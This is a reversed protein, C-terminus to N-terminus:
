ENNSIQISCKSCIKATHEKCMPVDCRLCKHSTKRDFATPCFGCRKQKAMKNEALLLQPNKNEPIDKCNLNLNLFSEIQVRLVTRLPHSLRHVLFPKILAMSLDRIFDKRYMKENNKLLNYIIFSNVNAQDMIGYFFRMSWRCTKRAVTFDHCKKDFSKTGGKTNNYFLIIEPKGTVADIKGINHYSSLLLVIKNSEPNYSVLMKRDDYAFQVKAGDAPKIKFEAPIERKSKHLAGVMTINYQELIKECIPISTFWENCTINRGTNYIPECLRRIYYSSVFETETKDKIVGCYPIANFLYHTTADNMTVIKLGYRDSKASMYMGFTCKGHFPLLQEDITCHSHPEYNAMCNTIFKDWIERIHALRDTAIREQRTNKDDFRICLLIFKFRQESMTMRFISSSFPSWLEQIDTNNGKVSGAFYLLGIVAKLEIIEVNKHYSQRVVNDVIMKEIVRNIEENTHILICNLIEDDFFLNWAELPTKVNLALGKPAAIYSTKLRKSHPEPANRSWKYGNEGRLYSHQDRRKKNPPEVNEDILVQPQKTEESRATDIKGPDNDSEDSVQTADHDEEGDTEFDDFNDLNRITDDFLDHIESVHRLRDAHTEM